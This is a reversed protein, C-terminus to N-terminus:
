FTTTIPLADEIHSAISGGGHKREIEKKSDADNPHYENKSRKQQILHVDPRLLHEDVIETIEKSTQKQHDVCPVTTCPWEKNQIDYPCEIGQFIHHPCEKPLLM